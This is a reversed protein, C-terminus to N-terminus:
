IMLDNHYFLGAASNVEFLRLIINIYNAKKPKSNNM